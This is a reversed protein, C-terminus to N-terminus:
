TCRLFLYVCYRKYCHIFSPLFTKKKSFLCDSTNKVEIFPFPLHLLWSLYNPLKVRHHYIVTLNIENCFSRRLLSLWSSSSFASDASSWILVMELCYRWISSSLSTVLAEHINQLHHINLLIMFIWRYTIISQM